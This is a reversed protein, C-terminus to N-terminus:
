SGVPPEHTTPQPDHPTASQGPSTTLVSVPICQGLAFPLRIATFTILLPTWTLLPPISKESRKLPGPLGNTPDIIPVVLAVTRAQMFLLILTPFPTAILVPRVVWGLGLPSSGLIPPTTVMDELPFLMFPSAIVVPKVIVSVKRFRPILKSLVLTKLGERGPTNPILLVWGQTILIFFWLSTLGVVPQLM